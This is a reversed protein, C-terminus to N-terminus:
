FPDDPNKASFRLMSSEQVFDSGREVREDEGWPSAELGHCGSDANITTATFKGRSELTAITM